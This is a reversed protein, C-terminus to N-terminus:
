MGPIIGRFWGMFYAVALIVVIILVILLKMSTKMNDKFYFENTSYIFSFKKQSKKVKTGRELKTVFL